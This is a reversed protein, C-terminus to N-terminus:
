VFIGSLSPKEEFSGYSPHPSKRGNRVNQTCHTRAATGSTAVKKRAKVIEAQAKVAKKGRWEEIVHTYTGLLTELGHGLQGAVEAPNIGEHFLLSAFSHRLDYPRTGKMGVFDASEHFRRRRWNRYDTDRWPDGDHRPFLLASSEPNGSVKKWAELDERLPTLLRVTRNARTKTSKETGLSIAKDIVLTKEGVDAWRLALAEGPRLGAYALVSTLVSDRYWGHEPEAAERRLMDARLREVDSPALPVVVHTSGQSLKKVDKVPNRNIRDWEVARQM